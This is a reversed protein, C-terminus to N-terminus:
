WKTSVSCSNWVITLSSRGHSFWATHVFSVEPTWVTYKSPYRTTIAFYLYLLLGSSSYMVISHECLTCEITKPYDYIITNNTIIYISCRLYKKPTFLGPHDAMDPITSNFKQKINSPFTNMIFSHRKLKTVSLMWHRVGPFFLVYFRASACLIPISILIWSTKHYFIM